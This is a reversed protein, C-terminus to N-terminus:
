GRAKGVTSILSWLFGSGWALHMSAIAAMVGPLLLAARRRLAAQVGAGLLLLGYVLLEILLPIRMAPIFISLASLVILSAVFLPPIAQRWRLSGPHRQLMRFKWYGYRWYQRALAGLSGRAIYTSRIEPDLWVVGGAQRVRTNFEYDENTLLTEDFGGVREFLSKHFAGFPVTDV